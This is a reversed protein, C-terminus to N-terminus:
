SVQVGFVSISVLNFTSNRSLQIAGDNDYDRVWGQGAIRIDAVQSYLKLDQYGLSITKEAVACEGHLYMVLAKFGKPIMGNSQSEIDLDIGASVTVSQYDELYIESSDCRVVEGQPQSYNGEGIVSGFILIPQSIYSEDATDGDCLIRLTCETATNAVAGSVEVWTKSGAGVFSTSLAIESVGDYISVKINDTATDSYVWFGGAVTRGHFDKYGMLLDDFSYYEASDAGKVLHLLYQGYGYTNDENYYRYADLTSTKSHGDMALTDAAIFGPTVEYLTCTASFNTAVGNTTWFYARSQEEGATFIFTNVGAALTASLSKEASANSINFQPEAGSNLTLNIVARYLKGETLDSAFTSTAQGSLTTNIASTINAGSSTFTEYTNNTWSTILNSTGPVNELTSNSCVGLGSNVLLNQKTDYKSIAGSLLWRGTGTDPAVIFPSNETASSGSGFVYTYVISGTDVKAHSADTLSTTNFSDLAGDVGGTLSSFEFVYPNAM